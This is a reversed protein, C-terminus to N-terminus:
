SSVLNKRALRYAEKTGTAHVKAGHKLQGFFEEVLQAQLNFVTTIHLEGGDHAFKM